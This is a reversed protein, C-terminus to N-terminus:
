YGSIAGIVVGIISSFLVVTVGVRMSVRAGYILRSLVDRGLDDLGLPHAMTPKLREETPQARNFQAQERPDYPAIWPALLAIVFFAAVIVLGVKGLLPM